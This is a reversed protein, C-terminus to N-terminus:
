LLLRMMIREYFNINGCLGGVFHSSSEYVWNIFHVRQNATLALNIDVLMEYAGNCESVGKYFNVLDIEV